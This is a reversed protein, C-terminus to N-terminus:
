NKSLSTPPLLLIQFKQVLERKKAFRFNQIPVDVSMFYEAKLANLKLQMSLVIFSNYSVTDDKLLYFQKFSSNNYFDNEVFNIAGRQHLSNLHNM